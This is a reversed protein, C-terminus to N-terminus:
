KYVCLYTAPLIILNYHSGRFFVHFDWLHNIWMKYNSIIIIFFFFFFFFWENELWLPLSSMPDGFSTNTKPLLFSFKWMKVTISGFFVVFLCFFLVFCFLFCNRKKKGPMKLPTVLAKGPPYSAGGGRGFHPIFYTLNSSFYSFNISIQPFLSSLPVRAWGPNHPQYRGQRLISAKALHRRLKQFLGIYANCYVLTVYVYIIM